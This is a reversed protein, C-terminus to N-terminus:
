DLGTEEAVGLMINLNQVAQGAAGKGLNDLVAILVAQGHAQNAFVHLTLRNTGNNTEADLDAIAGEGGLPAVSVFRKGGYADGLAAHLDRARPTGPLAWLQVPISVIMGQRFRGVSPVFLPRHALRGHVRMEETHKHELDLGYIRIPSDVHAASASDEYAEIMKRGGGSYGSVANVTAPFDAGLLAADILPRLLAVAGTPYCGPNSVRAAAAILGAQEPTMEPFGYVWDQNTRHASSADILRAAGAGALSAAETAAEDPLCLIVVDAQRMMDTRRAPDKREADHLSFFRLDGRGELRQRIQLGTTGAEGDIFVSATM